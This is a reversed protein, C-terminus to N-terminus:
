QLRLSNMQTKMQNLQNKISGDIIQDGVYVVAGGLISEDLKNDLIVKKNFRLALKEELAVRQAEDLPVVTLVTAEVMNKYPFVLQRFDDHIEILFEFRNKDLLINLFNNLYQNLSKRLVRDLIGKKESTNISPTLMLDMLGTESKFLDIVSSFEDFMADVIEKDVATDFLAQAYRKAVLSM